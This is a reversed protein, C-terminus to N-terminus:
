ALAERVWEARRKYAWASGLFSGKVQPSVLAILPLLTIKCPLFMHIRDDAGNQTKTAELVAHPASPM